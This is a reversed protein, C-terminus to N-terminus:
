PTKLHDPMSMEAQNLMNWFVSHDTFPEKWVANCTAEALYEIQEPTWYESATESLMDIVDIEFLGLKGDYVKENTCETCADTTTYEHIELHSKIGHAEM